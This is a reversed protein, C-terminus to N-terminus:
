IIKNQTAAYGKHSPLMCDDKKTKLPLRENNTGKLDRKKRDTEPSSTKQITVIFLGLIAEEKKRLKKYAKKQMKGVQEAAEWQKKREPKVYQEWQCIRVALDLAAFNLNKSTEDRRSQSVKTSRTGKRENRESHGHM